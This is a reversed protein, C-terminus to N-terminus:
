ESSEKKLIIIFFVAICIALFIDIVSQGFKTRFSLHEFSYLFFSISLLFSTIGTFIDSLRRRLKIYHLIFYISILVLEVCIFIYMIFPLM